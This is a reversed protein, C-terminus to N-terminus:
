KLAESGSVIETIETTIAAQRARNYDLTLRDILDDANRTANDMSTMRAAYEGAETELFAQLVQTRLHLPLLQGLVGEADPEYRHESGAGESDGVDPIAVPISQVLTPQQNLISIFRNYVLVVEDYKGAEFGATMEHVIPRVLDMKPVKSYDVIADDIQIGRAKCFDVGKRGVMRIHVEKGEDQLKNVRHLVQRLLSGNFPGCLGRDSTLVILLISNVPDRPTLLPADADGAHQAVHGLVEELKRQYPRAFIARDTAKKLRAGAVLKMASTIQRTKKVSAIRTKIDKLNPM